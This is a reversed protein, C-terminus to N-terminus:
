KKFYVYLEYLILIIMCLIGVGSSALGIFIFPWFLVELKTIWYILGLIAFILFLGYCVLVMYFTINDIKEKM